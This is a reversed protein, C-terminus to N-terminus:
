VKNQFTAQYTNTALEIQNESLEGTLVLTFKNMECYNADTTLIFDLLASISHFQLSVNQM